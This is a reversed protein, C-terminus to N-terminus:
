AFASGVSAVFVLTHDKKGYWLSKQTHAKELTTTYVSARVCGVDRM